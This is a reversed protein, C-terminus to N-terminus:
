APVLSTDILFNLHCSQVSTSGTEAPQGSELVQFVAQTISLLNMIIRLQIIILGFDWFPTLLLCIHCRGRGYRTNKSLHWDRRRVYGKCRRTCHLKISEQLPIKGGMTDRFLLHSDRLSKKSETRSSTAEM